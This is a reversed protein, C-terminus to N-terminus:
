LISIYLGCGAICNHACSRALRGTLMIQHHILGIGGMHDHLAHWLTHMVGPLWQPEHDVIAKRCSPSLTFHATPPLLVKNNEEFYEKMYIVNEHEMGVLIDIEKFIDERTNENDGTQQGIPPLAMIKIAFEEGSSKDTGLKVVAFGPLVPIIQADCSALAERFSFDAESVDKCYLSWVEHM